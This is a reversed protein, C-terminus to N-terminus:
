RVKEWFKARGTQDSIVLRWEAGCRECSCVTEGYTMAGVHSCRM